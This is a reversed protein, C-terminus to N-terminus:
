EKAPARDEVTVVLHMRGDRCSVLKQVAMSSDSMDLFKNPFTPLEDGPVRVKPCHIERCFLIRSSKALGQWWGQTVGHDDPTWYLPVESIIFLMGGYHWGPARPMSRSYPGLPAHNRILSTGRYVQRGRPCAPVHRRRGANTHGSPNHAKQQIRRLMRRMIVLTLLKIM